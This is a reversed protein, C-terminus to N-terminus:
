NLLYYILKGFDLRNQRHYYNSLSRERGKVQDMLKKQINERGQETSSLPFLIAKTPVQQEALGLRGCHGYRNGERAGPVEKCDRHRRVPLM